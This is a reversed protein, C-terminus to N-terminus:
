SYELWGTLIYKTGSLPPNGRHTHTYGAPFIVVTGQSPKVRKSLYIFETEGGEDVDNLYIIYAGIRRSHEASGHECHWIHYGEGPHTEQLKYYFISHKEIQNLIDFKQSYHSYCKDWFVSNFERIYGQLHSKTFSIEAHTTPGVACSEDNKYTPSTETRRWTKNNEKCWKYYEILGNCFDAPFAHEYVGIFDNM